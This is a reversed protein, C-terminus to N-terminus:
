HLIPEPPEAARTRCLSSLEQQSFLAPVGNGRTGAPSSGQEKSYVNLCTPAMYKYHDPRSWMNVMLCEQTLSWM